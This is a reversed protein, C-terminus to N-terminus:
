NFHIFNLVADRWLILNDILDNENDEIIKMHIDTFSCAIQIIQEYTPQTEYYKLQLYIQLITNSNISNENLLRNFHDILSWITSQISRSFYLLISYLVFDCSFM